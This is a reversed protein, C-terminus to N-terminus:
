PEPTSEDTPCGPADIRTEDLAGPTAGPEGVPTGELEIEPSALMTLGPSALVLAEPSACPTGLVNTAPPTGEQAESLAIGGTVLAAVLVATMFWRPM